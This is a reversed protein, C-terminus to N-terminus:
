NAGSGISYGGIQCSKAMTAANLPDGVVSQWRSQGVPGDYDVDRFRRTACDYETRYTTRQGQPTVYYSSVQIRDPAVVEVSAPDFWQEGQDTRAVLSWSTASAPPAIALWIVGVTVVGWLWPAIQRQGLGTQGLREATWLPKLTGAAKRNTQRRQTKGAAHPCQLHRSPPNANM